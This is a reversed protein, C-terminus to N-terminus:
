RLDLTFGVTARYGDEDFYSFTVCGHSGMDETWKAAMTDSRMRIKYLNRQPLGLAWAMVPESSSAKTIPINERFEQIINNDSDVLRLLISRSPSPPEPRKEVPNQYFQGGEFKLLFRIKALAALEPTPYTKQSETARTVNPVLLGQEMNEHVLSWTSDPAFIGTQIIVFVLVAAAAVAPAYVQPIRLETLRRWFGKVKVWLSVPEATARAIREGYRELFEQRDPVPIEQLDEKETLLESSALADMDQAMNLIERRFKKSQLLASKVAKKQEETATGMLYATIANGDPRVFRDVPEERSARILENLMDDEDSNGSNHKDPM